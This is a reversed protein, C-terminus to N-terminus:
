QPPCTVHAISTFEVQRYKDTWHDALFAAPSLEPPMFIFHDTLAQKIENRAEAALSPLIQRSYTTPNNFVTAVRFSGYRAGLDVLNQALLQCGDGKAFGLPRFDMAAAIVTTRSLDTKATEPIVKTQTSFGAAGWDFDKSEKETSEKPMCKAAPGSNGEDCSHKKLTQTGDSSKFTYVKKCAKCAVFNAIVEHEREVAGFLKWIAKKGEHEVITAEIKSLWKEIM